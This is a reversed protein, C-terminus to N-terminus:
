EEFALTLIRRHPDRVPMRTKVLNFKDGRHAVNVGIIGREKM